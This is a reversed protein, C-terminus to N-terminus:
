SVSESAGPRAPPPQRRVLHRVRHRRPRVGAVSRAAAPRRRTSPTARSSRSSVVAVERGALVERQAGRAEIRAAAWRADSDRLREPTSEGAASFVVRTDDASFAPEACDRLGTTLQVAAGGIQQLWIQPTAGDQGPMRSTSSWARTRRCRPGSRRRPRIRSASSVRRATLAPRADPKPDPKIQRSDWWASLENPDAFVSGRQAHPLRHVPLGEEREWRQVTRIGRGLFSAIEKWSDLRREARASGQPTREPIKTMVAPLPYRLPAGNRAM